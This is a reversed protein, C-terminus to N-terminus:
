EKNIIFGVFEKTQGIKRHGSKRVNGRGEESSKGPNVQSKNGFLCLRHLEVGLNQKIGM